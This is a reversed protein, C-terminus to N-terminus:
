WMSDLQGDWQQLESSEASTVEPEKRADLVLAASPDPADTGGKPASTYSGLYRLRRVRPLPRRCQLARM